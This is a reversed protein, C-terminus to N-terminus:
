KKLRTFYKQIGSSHHKMIRQLISYTNNSIVSAKEYVDDTSKLKLFLAIKEIRQELQFYNMPAYVIGLEKEIFDAFFKLQIDTMAM